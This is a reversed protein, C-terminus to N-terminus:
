PVPESVDDFLGSPQVWEHSAVLCFSKSSASSSLLNPCSAYSLFIGRASLCVRGPSRLTSLM